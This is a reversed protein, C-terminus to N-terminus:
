LYGFPCNQRGGICSFKIVQFAEVFRVDKLRSQLARYQALGYIAEKKLYIKGKQSAFVSLLDVKQNIVDSIDFFSQPTFEKTLPNEYALISPIHRAAEITSSGAAHHDHHQDSISHTLVVDPDTERVKEEIANILRGGTTLRTDRFGGFWIKKAGIARASQRAEGERDGRDGASAEGLTLVLLYVENGMAASKILFGGCGIEIDDPHAGIALVRM